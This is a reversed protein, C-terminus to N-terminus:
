LIDQWGFTPVFREAMDELPVNGRFQIEEAEKDILKWWRNIFGQSIVPIRRYNLKMLKAAIYDIYVPNKGGLIVGFKKTTQEMPGEGEGALVADVICLYHRQTEHQMKGQKDAYFIIKNLDKVCRWITDNGSWSGESFCAPRSVMNHEKLSKGRWVFTQFFSKIYGALLIGCKSKKLWNWCRVKLWEKFVFKSFEDGGKKINWRTHHAICTKDGNIGVLNKMACTIGAKRHTKLKPLNIIFDAELIERPIVYENKDTSHHRSVSRRPYDTIELADVREIVDILESKEKLNVCIYDDETRTPNFYKVGKIGRKTVQTVLMRMDLLKIYIGQRCYYDCLEKIGSLRSVEEFNATQVPCDGIIIKVASGAALYIYDVLPRLLSANTVMSLVGETGLPHEHFVMNPKLLVTQGRKILGGFPNWNVTGFNKHDYGLQHLTERVAEYVQNEKSSYEIYGLKSLEPYSRSPHFPADPYEAKTIKHCYVDLM